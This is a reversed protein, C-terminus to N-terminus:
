AVLASSIYLMIIKVLINDRSYASFLVINCNDLNDVLVINCNDLNDVNEGELNLILARGFFFSSRCREQKQFRALNEPWLFSCHVRVFM